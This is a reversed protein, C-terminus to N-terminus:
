HAGLKMIATVRSLPWENGMLRSSPRVRRITKQLALRVHFSPFLAM